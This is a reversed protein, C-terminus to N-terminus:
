ESHIVLKNKLFACRHLVAVVAASLRAKAVCVAAGGAVGGGSSSSRLGAPLGVVAPVRLVPAVAGRHGAM